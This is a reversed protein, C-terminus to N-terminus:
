TGRVGAVTDDTPLHRTELAAVQISSLRTIRVGEDSLCQYSSGSRVAVETVVEFIEQGSSLCISPSRTLLRYLM